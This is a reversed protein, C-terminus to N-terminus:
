MATQVGYLLGITFLLICDTELSSVTMKGNRNAEERSALAQLFPDTFEKGSSALVRHFFMCYVTYVMWM